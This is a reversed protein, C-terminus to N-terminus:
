DLPAVTGVRRGHPPRVSNAQQEEVPPMEGSVIRRILLSEEPNGPILAPGSRGGKLRSTRTRLDLGGEKRRNGHCTVCRVQFVPLIEQETVAPRAQQDPTAASASSRPAEAEIWLRIAEIEREALKEEGPPMQGSVLKELLLSRGPEGAIIAPGSQGGQLLYPLDQFSWNAKGHRRATVPCAICKM